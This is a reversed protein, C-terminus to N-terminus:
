GARLEMSQAGISQRARGDSDLRANVTELAQSVVRVVEDEDPPLVLADIAGAEMADLYLRVDLPGCAVLVAPPSSVRRMWKLSETPAPGGSYLRVVVLDAANKRVQTELREASSVWRVECGARKLTNELAHLDAPEEAWLVVRLGHLTQMGNAGKLSTATIPGENLFESGREPGLGARQLGLKGM